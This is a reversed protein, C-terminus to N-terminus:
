KLLIQEQLISVHTRRSATALYKRRPGRSESGHTKIQQKVGTNILAFTRILAYGKGNLTILVDRM